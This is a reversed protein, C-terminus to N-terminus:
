AKTAEILNKIQILLTSWGGANVADNYRKEGDAVKTYSGQTVILHTHGNTESLSYTVTLYNEPTDSMNPNNPDITTYALFSGPQIDVISGKVAVMEKGDWVGKWLLPSGIKWDSVTECGYMYKKTQEPNTLVDWVTAAPANITIDNKVILEQAMLTTNTNTTAEDPISGSDPAESVRISDMTSRPWYPDLFATILHLLYLIQAFKNSISRIVSPTSTNFSNSTINTVFM